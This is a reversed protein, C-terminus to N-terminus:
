QTPHQTECVVNPTEERLRLTELGLVFSPGYCARINIFQLSNLNPTMPIDPVLLQTAADM